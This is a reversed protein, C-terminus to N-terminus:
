PSKNFLFVLLLVVIVLGTGIFIGLVWPPLRRARAMTLFSAGAM